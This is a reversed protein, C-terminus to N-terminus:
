NPRDTNSKRSAGALAVVKSQQLAHGAGAAFTRLILASLEAFAVPRSFHFGQVSGCELKRLIQSQEETEVGEATVRMRLRRALHIITEVINVVDPNGSMGAVFSRDIKIKDFPYRWLYGLSSYGSGFDDLVISCGLARLREIKTRVDEADRLLLTETVELEIRGPDVDHRGIANAVTAVLDDREFQAPSLNISMRIGDPLLALCRCGEDIVWEGIASILGTEEAIPIFESPSIMEAGDALRLLAEVSEVRGTALDIMPQFHLMFGGDALASRLRGEVYRRRRLKEDFSPEFLRHCNRGANKAAYLAVDASKMLEPATNGDQPFRASGVSGRTSARNGNVFFRRDLAEVLSRAFEEVGSKDTMQTQVVVFEDGGLRGVEGRGAVVRTVRDAVELLCSDGADHGMTDNIGKFDDLDIIHLALPGPDQGGTWRDLYQAIARRNKLGTLADHYAMFELKNEAAEKQRTRRLLSLAPVGFAILSIVVIAGVLRTAIAQTDQLRDTEDVTLGLYGIREGRFAIPALTESLFDPEHSGAAARTDIFIGDSQIAQRAAPYRVSIAERHAHTRGIANSAIVLQGQVDFIKYDWVNGIIRAQEFFLVSEDSPVEGAIIERLDAVNDLLNASWDTARHRADTRMLQNVHYRLVWASLGAIAIAALIGVSIRNGFQSM